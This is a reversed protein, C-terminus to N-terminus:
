EPLLPVVPRRQEHAYRAAVGLRDIRAAADAALPWAREGGWPARLLPWRRRHDDLVTADGNWTADDARGVTFRVGLYAHGTNLWTCDLLRDDADTNWAHQIVDGGAMMAYGEVYELGYAAALAIANAYCLQPGGQPYTAVPFPHREYWAGHQLVFGAPGDYAYEIPGDPWPVGTLFTAWAAARDELDRRLNEAAEDIVLRADGDYPALAVALDTNLEERDAANALDLRLLLRTM